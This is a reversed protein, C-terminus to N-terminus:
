KKILAEYENMLDTPACIKIREGSYPHDFEVQQAQLLLRPSLKIVSEPAYFRDGVIPLGVSDLHVRIQHSRGTMPIVNLLAVESNEQIVEVKTLSPRGDEVVHHRLKETPHPALPSEIDFSNDSCKGFVVAQYLKFVTRNRFQEKLNREANKRLAILIIGSTDMDLRHVMQALPFQERIRTFVSDHKDPTRGPVSLLGSPKVIGLVDRDEYCIELPGEPPQYVFTKKNGM